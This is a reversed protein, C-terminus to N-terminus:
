QVAGGEPAQLMRLAETITERLDSLAQVGLPVGVRQGEVMKFVIVALDEGMLLGLNPMCIPLLFDGEAGVPLAEAAQDPLFPKPDPM